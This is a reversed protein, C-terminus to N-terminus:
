GDFGASMTLLHGPCIREKETRPESYEPFWNFAPEDIGGRFMPLHGNSIM